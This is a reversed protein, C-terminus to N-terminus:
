LSSKVKIELQATISKSVARQIDLIFGSNCPNKVANKIISEMISKTNMQHEVHTKAVQMVAEQTWKKIDEKTIGLENHMFNKFMTYKDM